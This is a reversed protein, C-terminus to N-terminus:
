LFVNCVMALLAIGAVILYMPLNNVNQNLVPLGDAGLVPVRDGIANYAWLSIREKYLFTVAVIGIVSALAGMLNIIGNAKSRLPKPTVDSM